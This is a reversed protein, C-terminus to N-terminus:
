LQTGLVEQSLPEPGTSPDLRHGVQGSGGTEMQSGSLTRLLQFHSKAGGVAEGSTGSHHGRGLWQWSPPQAQVSLKRQEENEQSSSGAEQPWSLQSEPTRPTM